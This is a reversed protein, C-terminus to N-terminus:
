ATRYFSLESFVIYYGTSSAHKNNVKITIIHMGNTYIGCGTLTKIVNAVAPDSYLDITGKSIGDILLDLIGFTLGTSNLFTISYTGRSLYVKYSINDGNVNSTNYYIWGSYQTIGAGWVWTGQGISVPYTPEVIIHGEGAEQIDSGTFNQAM